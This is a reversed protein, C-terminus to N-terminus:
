FRAPPLSLLPKHILHPWHDVCTQKFSFFEDIKQWTNLKPFNYSEGEAIEEELDFTQACCCVVSVFNVWIQFKQSTKLDLVTLEVEVEVVMSEVAVESEAVVVLAELAAVVVKLNLGTDAVELAEVTTTLNRRQATFKM